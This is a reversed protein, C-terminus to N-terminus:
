KSTEFPLSYRSSFAAFSNVNDKFMSIAEKVKSHVAPKSLLICFLRYIVWDAVARIEEFYSIENPSIARLANYAKKYYNMATETDQRLESLYGLKFEYRIAIEPLAIEKSARSKLKKYRYIDDKYHLLAADWLYKNLNAVNVNEPTEKTLLIGKPELESIKRLVGIKDEIYVDEKENLFVIVAVKVIAGRTREKIKRLETLLSSEKSKWDSGELPLSNAKRGSWDVTLLITAPFLARTKVVWNVKLIGKLKYNMLSKPEKKCEIERCSNLHTFDLKEENSLSDFRNVLSEYLYRPGLMVAIPWLQTQRIGDPLEGMNIITRAHM